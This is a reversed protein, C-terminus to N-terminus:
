QKKIVLRNAGLILGMVLMVGTGLLIKALLPFGLKVKFDMPAYTFLSDDAVGTDYFSTLLRLTAEPQVGWVDSVHGLSLGAIVGGAFFWMLSATPNEAEPLSFGLMTVIMGGIVVAMVFAAGVLLSKLFPKMKDGKQEMGGSFCNSRHNRDPLATCFVTCFGAARIMM